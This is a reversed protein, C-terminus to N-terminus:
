GDTAPKPSIRTRAGPPTEEKVIVTRRNTSPRPPPVHALLQSVAEALHPTFADRYRENLRGRWVLRRESSDIVLVLLEAIEFRTVETRTSQVEYSPSHHLSSLHQVADTV